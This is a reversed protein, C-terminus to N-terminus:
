EKRFSMIGLIEGGVGESLVIYMDLIERGAGESRIIYTSSRGAWERRAAVVEASCNQFVIAIVDEGGVM